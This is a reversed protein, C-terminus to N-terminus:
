VKLIARVFLMKIIIHLITRCSMHLIQAPLEVILTSMPTAKSWSEILGAALQENSMQGSVVVYDGNSDKLRANSIPDIDVWEHYEQFVSMTAPIDDKVLQRYSAKAEATDHAPITKRDQLLTTWANKTEREMQREKVAAKFTEGFKEQFVRPALCSGESLSCCGSIETQM